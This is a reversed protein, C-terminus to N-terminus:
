FGATRVILAVIEAATYGASSWKMITGKNSWVWRAFKAGYKVGLGILKTALNLWAM